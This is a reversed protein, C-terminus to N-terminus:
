FTRQTESELLGAERKPLNGTASGSLVVRSFYLSHVTEVSVSPESRSSLFRRLLMAVDSLNLHATPVFMGAALVASPTHGGCLGFLFQFLM